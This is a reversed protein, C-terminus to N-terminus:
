SVSDRQVCQGCGREFLRRMLTWYFVEDRGVPNKIDKTNNKISLILPYFYSFKRKLGAPSKWGVELATSCKTSLHNLVAVFAREIIQTADVTRMARQPGTILIIVLRTAYATLIVTRLGHTITTVQPVAVAPRRSTAV